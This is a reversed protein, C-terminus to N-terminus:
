MAQFTSCGFFVDEGNLVILRIIGVKSVGQSIKEIVAVMGPTYLTGRIKLSKLILSQKPLILAVQKIHVDTSFDVHDELCVSNPPIDFKNTPFLGYYRYCIQALEHRSACTKSVNKFNKSARIIGKFYTHKSEMRMAWMSILPGYNKYCDPYHSLFHHKPRPNSMGFVEVASIRLDLYSEIIDRMEFDIENSTLRPATVIEAVEQLKIIMKGVESRDLIDALLVTIIRSLVRMQGASGTFKAAKSKFLNPKNKSDRQSLKCNALLHNFESATILKERSIIFDLLFQCDQSFIGEFFDHGLCPPMGTTCHYSELSNFICHKKIGCSETNSEDNTVAIDAFM